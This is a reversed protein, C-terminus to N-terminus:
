GRGGAHIQAKIVLNTGLTQAKQTLNRIDYIVVGKPVPVGYERLLDKAQHEHINM